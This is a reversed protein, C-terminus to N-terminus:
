LFIQVDLVALVTTSPTTHSLTVRQDLFQSRPHKQFFRNKSEPRACTAAEGITAPPVTPSNSASIWSSLEHAM